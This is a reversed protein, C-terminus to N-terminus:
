RSTRAKARFTSTSSSTPRALNGSYSQSSMTVTDRCNVVDISFNLDLWLLLYNVLYAQSYPFLYNTLRQNM